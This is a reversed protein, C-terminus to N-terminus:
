TFQQIFPWHSFEVQRFNARMQQGTPVAQQLVDDHWPHTNVQAPQLSQLSYNLVALEAQLASRIRSLRSDTPLSVDAM